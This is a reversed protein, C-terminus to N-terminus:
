TRIQTLTELFKRGADTIAYNQGGAWGPAPTWGIYGVRCLETRDHSPSLYICFTEPTFMQLIATQSATLSM